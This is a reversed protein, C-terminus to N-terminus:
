YFAIENGDLYLHFKDADNKIDAEENYRDTVFQINCVPEEKEMDDWVLYVRIDLGSPYGNVGTSFKMSRFSNEQCMHVVKRAFAEKDDIKRSNAIVTLYHYNNVSISGTVDPVGSDDGRWCKMTSMGYFLIVAVGFAALSCGFMRKEKKM